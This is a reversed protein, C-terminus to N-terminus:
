QFELVIEKENSPWNRIGLDFEESITAMKRAACAGILRMSSFHKDFIQGDLGLLVRLLYSTLFYSSNSVM